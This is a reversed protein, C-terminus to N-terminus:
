LLGLLHERTQMLTCHRSMAIGGTDGGVEEADGLNVRIQDTRFRRRDALMRHKLYAVACMSGKREREEILIMRYYRGVKEAKRIEEGRNRRAKRKLKKRM